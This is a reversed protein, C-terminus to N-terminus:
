NDNHIQGILNMIQLYRQDNIDERIDYIHNSLEQLVNQRNPITEQPEDEDFLARQVRGENAYMIRRPNFRIPAPPITRELVRQPTSPPESIQMSM